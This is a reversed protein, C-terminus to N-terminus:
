EVHFVSKLFSAVNVLFVLQVKLSRKLFVYKFKFKFKIITGIKEVNDTHLCLPIEMPLPIPLNVNNVDKQALKIALHWMGCWMYRTLGGKKEAGIM